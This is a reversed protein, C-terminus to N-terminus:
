GLRPREIRVVVGVIWSTPVPGWFRSDDSEGRNDGMLFWYGRPIRIPRPLNCVPKAACGRIYPDRERVFSASRRARRYVHGRRISIEAGPGAVIREIVTRKSEKSNPTDCASRRDRAAPKVGCEGTAAGEPPHVVVIAGVAPRGENTVVHAGIPVTPEMSGTPVRFVRSGLAHIGRGTAPSAAAANPAKTTAAGVASLMASILLAV